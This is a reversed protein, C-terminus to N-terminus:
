ENGELVNFLAIRISSIGTRFSNVGKGKFTIPDIWEYIAYDRSYDEESVLNSFLLNCEELQSFSSRALIEISLM